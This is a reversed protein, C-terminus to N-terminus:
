GLFHGPPVDRPVPRTGPGTVAQLADAVATSAPKPEAFKAFASTAAETLLEGSGRLGPTGDFLCTMGKPLGLRATIGSLGSVHMVDGSVTPASSGPAM